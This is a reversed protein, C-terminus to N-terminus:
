PPARHGPWTIIAAKTSASSASRSADLSACGRSRATAPSSLPRHPRARPRALARRQDASRAHLCRRTRRPAAAAVLADCRMSCPPAFSAAPRRGPLAGPRGPLTAMRSDGQARLTEVSRYRALHRDAEAWGDVIEIPLGLREALPEATQQARLLPSAVIRTIGEGRWCRPWPSAGAAARRRAAASRAAARCPGRRSPRTARSSRLRM